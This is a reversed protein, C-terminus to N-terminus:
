SGLRNSPLLLGVISEAGALGGELALLLYGFVAEVGPLDEEMLLFLVVPVKAADVASNILEVM